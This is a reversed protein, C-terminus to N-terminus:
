KNDKKALARGKDFRASDEPRMQIPRKAQWSFPLRFLADRLDKIRLPYIPALYPRGISTLKLLHALFFSFCMSVGIIGWLQAFLLFPFRILRITNSMQYIPTTFSALAALAIIILLVNSTLGAQVSATGIVIGGVIGITQGVKTPLRAGAERLLEITLELIVAEIIPPFPIAARSSVLTALLRTPIMEYHYTLVAVYLPTSLVSFMVAGLRILRFSSAIHWPLFYDEFASFFEVLTIPVTFAHPSGDVIIAIKGESLVSTVRDPRETDVFQPFPSNSNDAIMQTIFSSDSIQDYELDQIRQMVTNINEQNAIGDIYLVVVRTKSIKGVRVEKVQLQPLPLRKRILNINTDLSEVFAEKPGVVSFEVEPTTVQRTENAVASILVGKRDKEKMQIFIHGSMIKNQIEEVCDTIVINEIPLLEGIDELNRFDKKSLPSLIHTHIFDPNVLTKIYTVQCSKGDTEFTFHLFDSSGSLTDFLGSLTPAPKSTQAKKKKKSQLWNFM